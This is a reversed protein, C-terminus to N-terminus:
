KLDNAVMDIKHLARPGNGVITAGRVPRGIKGGEVLYGETVAFVFDGTTVDVQGAGLKKAYLGRPTAAIIDEVSHAGAAIFTNTMRPIPLPHYSQRRGNGTVPHNQQGARLRDYMYSMLVGDQILVNRRTPGGGEEVGRPEGRSPSPGGEM